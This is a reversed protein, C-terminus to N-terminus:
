GKVEMVEAEGDRRAFELATRFVMTKQDRFVEAKRRSDTWRWWSRLDTNTWEIYLLQGHSLRRTIIHPM